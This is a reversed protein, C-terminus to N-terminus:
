ALKRGNWIKVYFLRLVNKYKLNKTILFIQLGMNPRDAPMCKVLFVAGYPGFYM